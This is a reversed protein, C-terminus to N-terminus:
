SANVLSCRGALQLRASRSDLCSLVISADRLEALGVGHVLRQPRTIITTDPALTALAIAAANVKFQGIDSERFLVCRSLNSIAVIDPDCILLTGIGSMALIRAVENGLAGMGIIVATAASLQSQEWGHILNHREFRKNM